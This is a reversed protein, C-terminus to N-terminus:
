ITIIIIYIYVMKNDWQNIASVTLPGKLMNVYCFMRRDHGTFFFINPTSSSRSWDCDCFVCYSYNSSCLTYIHTRINKGVGLEYRFM